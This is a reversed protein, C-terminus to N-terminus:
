GNAHQQQNRRRQFEDAILANKMVPTFFPNASKVTLDWAFGPEHTLASLQTASLSGYRSWVNEILERSEEDIQTNAPVQAPAQIATGSYQKFARYVAPVVPGYRWAQVEDTVLPQGRFALSWGHALYILKQMKVPFIPIGDRIALTLFYNAIVRADYPM